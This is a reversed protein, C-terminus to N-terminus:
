SKQVNYIENAKKIAKTRAEQRTTSWDYETFLLVHSIKDKISYDYKLYGCFKTDIGVDVSEFFDVYVGYQMSQPLQYFYNTTWINFRSSDEEGIWSCRGEQESENTPKELWENFDEKCKGTLKM